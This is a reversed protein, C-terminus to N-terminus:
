ATLSRRYVGPTCGVVASFDRTFHAQDAYGLEAAISALSDDPRDRIRAAAGHLRRRQLLWKPSMGVRRRTLRQLSRESMGFQEALERSTRLSTDLEAADCVANVLLVEDDVLDVVLDLWQEFAAVVDADVEPDARGMSERVRQTLEDGDPVAATGGLLMSHDGPVVLVGAGPRLLLGAVWGDGVLTREALGEVPLHAAAEDPEVAINVAPYNLVPQRLVEGPPLSWRGIWVQRAIDGYRGDVAFRGM